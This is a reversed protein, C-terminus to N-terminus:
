RKAESLPAHFFTLVDDFWVVLAAAALAPLAGALLEEARAGTGEGGTLLCTLLGAAVLTLLSNRVVHPWSAPRDPEGMCGCSSGRGSRLLAILYATFASLLAAVWLFGCWVLSGPLLMSCFAVVEAGVAGRAAVSAWPGAGTLTTAVHRRFSAFNRVKLATSLAFVAFFLVRGSFLFLAMPHREPVATGTPGNDFGVPM